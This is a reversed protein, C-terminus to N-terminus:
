GLAAQLAASLDPYHWEFGLSQLVAPVAGVSFLLMEDAAEGMALKAVGGPLPVFTPRSLVKGLAKTFAANTVPEPAVANFPGSLEDHEIAFAIMRVVDEIHVWPMLQEGSGIKGGVGMKFPIKMASLAGGEGSLVVGIRPHVVRIGAAAAPAASAEWAVAVEALFGEGAHADETLRADGRDGYYGSASASVLVRPPRELGALTRAILTTGKVRSEMIRRKKEESWRGAVSEGALHVVADLGELASADLEGAAPDWRIAEGGSRSIGRVRWGQERLHASLASGILGTAGTIAVSRDAM